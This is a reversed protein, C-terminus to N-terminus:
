VKFACSPVDEGVQVEVPMMSNFKSCGFVSLTYPFINNEITLKPIANHTLTILSGDAYATGGEKKVLKGKLEIYANTWHLLLNDQRINFRLVKYEGGDTM